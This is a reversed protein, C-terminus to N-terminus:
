PVDRNTDLEAPGVGSLLSALDAPVCRGLAAVFDEAARRLRECRRFLPSEDLPRREAEASGTAVGEVEIGLEAFIDLARRWGVDGETVAVGGNQLQRYVAVMYERSPYYRNLFERVREVEREGFAVVVEGAAEGLARWRHADFPPAALWLRRWRKGPPVIRGYPLFDLGAAPEPPAFGYVAEGEGVAGALVEDRAEGRRDRVQVAASAPEAEAPRPVIYELRLELRERERWRDLRPTYVLGYRGAALADGDPALNFGIARAQWPGATATVELHANKFVRQSGEEVWTETYFTAPPVGPGVPELLEAEAALAPSLAALGLRGDVVVRPQLAEPTLHEAAYAEFAEAFGELREASIEFGAALEHGGFRTLYGEVATLAEHMDFSPISRCSGRGEAGALAILVTPRYFREVVRSAVIGIVGAHWREGALVVSRRGAEVQAAARELVEGAVGNELERRRRNFEELQRALGIARGEDAAVLLELAADAHGLRGAANLRPGVIFALQWTNFPAEIGAEAAVAALGPVVEGPFAKLGAAVLLRNERDLEVVDCVTGLAVLPLLAEAEWDAGAERIVEQALKYAVGVGAFGRAPHGEPLRQSSVVAEAPPLTAGLRHHDTVVVALGATRAAEVAAHARSGCDVTLLVEAGAERARAVTAESLDYGERLRNPIYYDVEAGLNRLVLTLLATATLGDVDYDGALFFRRGRRAAGVILEAAAGLDPFDLPPTMATPDPFLFRRAAEAETVGRAVLVQALAPDVTLAEALALEAAVDRNPIEIRPEM